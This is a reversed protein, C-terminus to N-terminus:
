GEISRGHKGKEKKKKWIVEKYAKVSFGEDAGIHDELESFSNEVDALLLVSLLFLSDPPM